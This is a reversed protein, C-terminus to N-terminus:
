QDVLIVKWNESIAYKKGTPPPPVELHRLAVFEDFNRNLKRGVMTHHLERTLGSLTDAMQPDVAADSNRKCGTALLLVCFFIGLLRGNSMTLRRFIAAM